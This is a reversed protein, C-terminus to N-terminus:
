LVERLLYPELEAAAMGTRKGEMVVTLDMIESELLALYALAAGLHFLPKAFASEAQRYLARAALKELQTLAEPEPIDSPLDFGLRRAEVAVRAGLAIRRVTALSVEFARHLSYNVIEEPSIRSYIRYRFAGLLNQVAIWRGLFREAEQRDKGRLEEIRSVLQQFYYLDLAIELFFPLNEQQYREWANALPRGYPTHSLRDVLAAMSGAELLQPWFLEPSEIPWLLAEAHEKSFGHHLMRIIAKLNEVEFRRLYWTVADSAGEPLWRAVVRASQALSATLARLSQEPESKICDAYATGQLIPALDGYGPAHLLRVWGERTILRSRRARVAAQSAAYSVPGFM